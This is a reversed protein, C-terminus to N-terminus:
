EGNRLWMAGAFLSGSNIFDRIIEFLKDKDKCIHLLPCDTGNIEFTTLATSNKEDQEFDDMNSCIFINPLSNYHELLDSYQSNLFTYTAGTEIEIIVIYSFNGECSVDIAWEDDGYVAGFTLLTEATIKNEIERITEIGFDLERCVSAGSERFTLTLDHCKREM